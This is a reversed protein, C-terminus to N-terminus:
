CNGPPKSALKRWAVAFAAFAAQCQLETQKTVIANVNGHLPIRYAIEVIIIYCSDIICM